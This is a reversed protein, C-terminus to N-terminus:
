IITIDKWEAERKNFWCPERMYDQSQVSIRGVRRFVDAGAASGNDVQQLLIGEGSEVEGEVGTAYVEMSWLVIEEDVPWEGVVDINLTLRPDMGGWQMLLALEEDEVEPGRGHCLNLAQYRGRRYEDHNFWLVRRMRARVRMSGGKVSGFRMKVSCLETEAHILECEVKRVKGEGGEDVWPEVDGDLAAWSWSPARYKGPRRTKKPNWVRWLCQLLLEERWMGALYESVKATEAYREAVAGVAPLKDDEVTLKRQSYNEIVDGWAKPHHSTSHSTGLQGQYFLLGAYQNHEQWHPHENGGDRHTAEACWSLMECSGYILIRPSLQHEQYTWGRTFLPYDVAAAPPPPCPSIQARPRRPRPRLRQRRPPRLPPLRPIPHPTPPLGPPQTLPHSEPFPLHKTPSPATHPTYSRVEQSTAATAASVTVYANRYVAYMQGIQEAMDDGDDQIICMADVWLYRLGIGRTVVIADQITQPLTHLPIDKEYVTVRSKVTKAMQDGGWCYSLAVYPAAPADTSLWARLSPSTQDIEIVRKPM